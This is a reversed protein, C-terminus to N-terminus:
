REPLRPPHGRRGHLRSRLPAAYREHGHDPWYPRQRRDRLPVAVCTRRRLDHDLLPQRVVGGGLRVCRRCALRAPVSRLASDAQASRGIAQQEERFRRRDADSERLGERDDASREGRRSGNGPELQRKPGELEPIRDIMWAEKAAERLMPVEIKESTEATTTSRLYPYSSTPRM